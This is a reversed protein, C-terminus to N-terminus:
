LLKKSFITQQLLLKDFVVCFSDCLHKGIGRAQAEKAEKEPLFTRASAIQSAFDDKGLRFSMTQRGISAIDYELEYFIDLYDGDGPLAALIRLVPWALVYAITVIGVYVFAM